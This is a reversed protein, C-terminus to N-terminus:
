EAGITILTLRVTAPEDSILFRVGDAVLSPTNQATVQWAAREAVALDLPYADARAVLGAFGSLESPVKPAGHVILWRREPPVGDLHEREFSSLRLRAGFAPEALKLVWPGLGAVKLELDAFLAPNVGELLEQLRALGGQVRFADALGRYTEYAILAGDPAAPDHSLVLVGDATQRIDTEFGDAVSGASLLASLSNEPHRAHYGRHALVLVRGQTM